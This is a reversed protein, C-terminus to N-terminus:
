RPAVVPAPGGPQSEAGGPDDAQGSAAAVLALLLGLMVAWLALRDPRAGARAQSGSRSRRRVTPASSIQITRRGADPRTGARPAARPGRREPAPPTKVARLRPPAPARAQDDEARRLRAQADTM